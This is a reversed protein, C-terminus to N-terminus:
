SGAADRLRLAWRIPETIDHPMCDPGEIQIRESAHQCSRLRQRDEENEFDGGQASIGYVKFSFHEKNSVLFQHFYSLRKSLWVDPADYKNWGEKSIIDWASVLVAIRIPAKKLIFPQIFQLLGVLQVQTPVAEPTWESNNSTAQPQDNTAPCATDQEDIDEVGASQAMRQVASIPWPEKIKGANFFVLLSDANEVLVQYDTTWHRYKWQTQFTEGSLDPFVVEGIHQEYQDDFHLSASQEASRTTRVAPICKLWDNRIANLYKAEDSIIRLTLAQPVERSEAVHWLAALFTTKGAHPLGIALLRKPDTM